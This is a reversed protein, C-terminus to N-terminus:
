TFTERPRNKIALTWEQCNVRVKGIEGYAYSRFSSCPWQDPEAVLRAVVPNSHIYRLKEIRKRETWPNFDFFRKQWVSEGDCRLVGRQAGHVARSSKQKLVKIVVSPDRQEPESILLHVHDPMVVYGFVVFQYRQRTEELIELFLDRNRASVFYPHRHYCSFTIYHLHNAGYYRKLRTPM